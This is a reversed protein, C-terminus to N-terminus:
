AQLLLRPAAIDTRDLPRQRVAARFVPRIVHDQDLTADALHRGMKQTLELVASPQHRNVEFAPGPPPRQPPAAASVEALGAAEVGGRRCQLLKCPFLIERQLEAPSRHGSAGADLTPYHGSRPRSIAGLSSV